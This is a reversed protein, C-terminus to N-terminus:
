AQGAPLRLRSKLARARAANAAGIHVEVLRRWLPLYTPDSRVGRLLLARLSARDAGRQMRGVAEWHFVNARGRAIVAGRALGDRELIDMTRLSDLFVDPSPNDVSVQRPHHRYRSLPQELACVDGVLTLEIFFLWDSAYRLESRFGHPPAAGRRHMVSAGAGFASRCILEETNRWSRVGRNVVSITEGSGSDFWEVPHHCISAEARADLAEVQARIKGPKFLDDGGLWAVYDGDCAALILNFNATIGRNTENLILRIRDPHRRRYEELIEPTRDTSGDDGAVIELNPYGQDLVSELAEAVFGEQNYTPIAVSVSSARRRQSM